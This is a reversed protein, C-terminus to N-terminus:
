YASMKGFKKGSGFGKLRDKGKSKSYYFNNNPNGKNDYPLQYNSFM